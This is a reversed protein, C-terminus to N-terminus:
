QKVMDEGCCVLTGGGEELVKVVQGCLECKYVDGENA